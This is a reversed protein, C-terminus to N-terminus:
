RHMVAPLPPLGMRATQQLIVVADTHCTLCSNLGQVYQCQQPYVELLGTGLHPQLGKYQQEKCVAELWLTM